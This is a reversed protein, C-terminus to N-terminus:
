EPDDLNSPEPDRDTCPESGRSATSTREDLTWVLESGDFRVRFVSEHRGPQFVEPQGRNIPPPTFRNRSQNQDNIPGIPITVPETNPNNYGFRATYTGDANEVVCELVPSVPRGTIPVTPTATQTPTRTTTPSATPTQTVTPSTTPTRTTTPSATPTLTATSTITATPSPTVTITPTVSATPTVTITPTVSATPTVTITPTVSATPTVTITPTVTPQVPLDSVPTKIPTVTPSPPETPRSTSTPRPTSTPRREPTSTATVVTDTSPLEPEPAPQVLATATPPPTPPISPGSPLSPVISDVPETIATATVNFEPPVSTPSSGAASSAGGSAPIPTITPSSTARTPSSGNRPTDGAQRDAVTTTTSTATAGPTGTSQGTATRSPSAAAGSSTPTQQVEQKLQTVRERENHLATQQQPDRTIKESAVDITTDATALLQELQPQVAETTGARTAETIASQVQDNFLEITELVHQPDPESSQTVLRNLEALRQDAYDLYLLSRRAPDPTLVLALSERARKWSYLVDGPLSEASATNILPTVLILLALMMVVAALRPMYFRPLKFRGLLQELRPLTFRPRASPAREVVPDRARQSQMQMALKEIDQRGAALWAQMEPPLPTQAEQRVASAVRLLPELEAAKDPHEALCEEVSEGDLLRDLAKDLTHSLDEQM